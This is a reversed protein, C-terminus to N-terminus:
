QEVVGVAWSLECYKTGLAVKGSTGEGADRAACKATTASRGLHRRRSAKRRLMIACGPGVLRLAALFVGSRGEAM